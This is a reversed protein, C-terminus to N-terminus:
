AGTIIRRISDSKRVNETFYDRGRMPLAPIKGTFAGPSAGICEKLTFVQGTETCSYEQPGTRAMHRQGHYPCLPGFTM